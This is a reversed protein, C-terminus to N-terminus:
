IFISGDNLLQQTVFSEYNPIFNSLIKSSATTRTGKTCFLDKIGLPIGDLPLSNSNDYRKQSEDILSKNHAKDIKLNFTYNTNLKAKNLFEDHLEEVSITKKQLSNKIQSISQKM